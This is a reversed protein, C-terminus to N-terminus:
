IKELFFTATPDLFVSKQHTLKNTTCYKRNIQKRHWSDFLLIQKTTIERAVTWHSHKWNEYSIIATSPNPGHLLESLRSWFEDVTVGSQGKFPRTNQLKYQPCIVERLVRNIGLIGTGETIFEITPKKRQIVAICEMLIEQGQNMGIKGSLLKAANIAAYIGCLGDLDGQQFPKM